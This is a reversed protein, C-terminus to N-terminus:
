LVGMRDRGRTGTSLAHDPKFPTLLAYLYGEGRITKICDVGSPFVADLKRRLRAIHVDISRDYPYSSRGLVVRTLDERSVLRGANKLLAELLRFEASTLVPQKGQCTVMRTGTDLEVDGVVIRAPAPISNAPGEGKPTARRLIAHIHALLERLDFPKSLYGDAGIELALIRDVVESKSTMMLVPTNSAARFNRLVDFGNMGPLNVDLLILDFPTSSARNLGEEGDHISEIRFSEETLYETLMECLMKDDDVILISM